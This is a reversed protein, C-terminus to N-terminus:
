DFVIRELKSKLVDVNKSFNDTLYNVTTFPNKKSLYFEM